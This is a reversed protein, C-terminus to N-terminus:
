RRYGDKMGRWQVPAYSRAGTWFRRNAQPMSLLARLYMQRLRQDDKKTLIRMWIVIIIATVIVFPALWWSVFAGGWMILLMSVCVIVVLPVLPIGGKMAPRTAGKFIDERVPM